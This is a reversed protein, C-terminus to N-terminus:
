LVVTKYGPKWYDEVRVNNQQDLHTIHIYGCAIFVFIIHGQHLYISLNPLAKNRPQVGGKLYKVSLKRAPIRRTLSSAASLWFIMLLRSDLRPAEGRVTGRDVTRISHLKYQWADSGSNVPRVASSSSLTAWRVKRQVSIIGSSPLRGHM